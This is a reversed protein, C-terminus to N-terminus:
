FDWVIHTRDRGLEDFDFGAIPPSFSRHHISMLADFASSAPQIAGRLAYLLFFSPKFGIQIYALSAAYARLFTWVM